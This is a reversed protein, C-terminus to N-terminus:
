KTTLPRKPQRSKKGRLAKWCSKWRCAASIWFIQSWGPVSWVFRKPSRDSNDFEARMKRRRAAPLWTDDLFEGLRPANRPKRTERVDRGDTRDWLLGQPGAGEPSRSRRRRLRWSSVPDPSTASLSACFRAFCLPRPAVCWDWLCSWVSSHRLARWVPLRWENM